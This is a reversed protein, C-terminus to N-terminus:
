GSTKFTSLDKKKKKGKKKTVTPKVPVAPAEAAAPAPAPAPEKVPASAPKAEEVPKSEEKPKPTADEPKKMPPKAPTKKPTTKTAWNAGGGVPTKKGPKPKSKQELIKGASGLDPFLEENSTDLNQSMMPGGTGMRMKPLTQKQARARASVWVASATNSAPTAAARAAQKDRAEQEKREKEAKAQAAQREMGQRAAALKAKTEEMKLKEAINDSNKNRGFSKMDLVEPGANNAVPAATKRASGAEEWQQDDQSPAPTVAEPEQENDTVVPAAAPPSAQPQPTSEVDKSLAPADVHVTKTVTAADVLNANFKFAKKKRKKNAFFEAAANSM